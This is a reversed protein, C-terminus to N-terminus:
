NGSFVPERKELFARLGEQQDRSAACVHFARREAALGVALHEASEGLICDLVGRVALPPHAALERALTIAASKLESPRHVDHVLGLRKAEPGDVRRARLIMDLAAAQGVQRTLRATGGWAPVTGLRMEPLGIQAGTEAALRFHCALPLELGGGLCHGFLTAVSPKGLREIRTLVRQRQDLVADWGGRAPGQVQMQKLDMGVSFNADGEATLVLARVSPDAAAEELRQELADMFAFGMRNWPPDNISFVMVTGCRRVLLAAEGAADRGPQNSSASM